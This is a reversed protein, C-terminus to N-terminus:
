RKNCILQGDDMGCNRYYGTVQGQSYGCSLQYKDITKSCNLQYGDVTKSCSLTYWTISGPCTRNAKLDRWQTTLGQPCTGGNVNGTITKSTYGAPKADGVVLRGSRVM